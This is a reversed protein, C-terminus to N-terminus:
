VLLFGLWRGCSSAEAVHVSYSSMLMMELENVVRVKKLSKPYGCTMGLKRIHV